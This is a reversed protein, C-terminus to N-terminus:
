VEFVRKNLQDIGYKRKWIHAAPGRLAQIVEARTISDPLPDYQKKQVSPVGMRENVAASGYRECLFRFDRLSLAANRTGAAKLIDATLVIETGNPLTYVTPLEAAKPLPREERALTRLEDSTLAKRRANERKTAALEQLDSIPLGRNVEGVEEILRNYNHVYAAQQEKKRMAEFFVRREATNTREPNYFTFEDWASQYAPALLLVHELQSAASILSDVTLPRSVKDLLTSGNAQVAFEPRAEFFKALIEQDNM